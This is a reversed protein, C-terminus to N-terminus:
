RHGDGHHSEPTLRCWRYCKCSRWWLEVDLDDIVELSSMRVIMLIFWV